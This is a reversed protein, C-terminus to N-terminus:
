VSSQATHIFVNTKNIINYSNLLRGDPQNSQIYRVYTTKERERERTPRIQKKSTTFVVMLQLAYNILSTSSYLVMFDM